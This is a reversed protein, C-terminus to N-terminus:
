HGRRGIDYLMELLEGAFRSEIAQVAHRRALELTLFRAAQDLATREDETLEVLSRLCLLAAEADQLAGVRFLTAVAGDAFSVEARAPGALAAAVAQGDVAGGGVGEAAVVHGGADVLAVPLELDETLLRLVGREGAGRAVAQALANGRSVSRLLERQRADAQLEAMAQSVATFPVEIPLSLLPLADRRCAALLAAPVEPRERLLGFVLGCADSAAVRAVYEEPAVGHEIWVGNTLVLEAGRVYPRPDALETVHVWRVQRDLLTEGHLVVLGLETREVLDRIRLM